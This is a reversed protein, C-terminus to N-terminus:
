SDIKTGFLCTKKPVCLTHWRSYGHINFLRHRLISSWLKRFQFKHITPLATEWWSYGKLFFMGSKLFLSFCINTTEFGFLCSWHCLKLTSVSIDILRQLTQTIEDGEAISLGDVTAFWVCEWPILITESKQLRIPVRLPFLCLNVSAHHSRSFYDGHREAWATNKAQNRSAWFCALLGRRAYLLLFLCSQNLDPCHRIRVTGGRRLIKVKNWM